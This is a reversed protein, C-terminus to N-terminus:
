SVWQRGAGPPFSVGRGLGTRSMWLTGNSWSTFDSWSHRVDVIAKLVWFCLDTTVLHLFPPQCSTVCDGFGDSLTEIICISIAMALALFLSCHGWILLNYLHFGNRQPKRSEWVVFAFTETADSCEVGCVMGSSLRSAQCWPPSGHGGVVHRLGASQAWLSPDWCGRGRRGVHGVATGLFPAPPSDRAVCWWGRGGQQLVSHLSSQPSLWSSQPLNQIM